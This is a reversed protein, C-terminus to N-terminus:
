QNAPAPASKSSSSFTRALSSHEFPEEVGEKVLSRELGRLMELEGFLDPQLYAMVLGAVDSVLHQEVASEIQPWLTTSWAHLMEEVIHVALGGCADEEAYRVVMEGLTTGSAEDETFLDAMPHRAFFDVEDRQCQAVLQSAIFPSIGDAAYTPGHLYRFLPYRKMLQRVRASESWSLPQLRAELSRAVSDLGLGRWWVRVVHAAYVSKRSPDLVCRQYFHSERQLLAALSGYLIGSRDVVFSGPSATRAAVHDDTIRQAVCVMLEVDDVQDAPSSWGSGHRLGSFDTPMQLHLHLCIWERLDSLQHLQDRPLPFLQFLLANPSHYPPPFRSSLDRLDLDAAAAKVAAVVTNAEYEPILPRGFPGGDARLQPPPAVETLLPFLAAYEERSLSDVSGASQLSDAHFKTLQETTPLTEECPLLPGDAFVIADSAATSSSASAAEDLRKGTWPGIAQDEMRLEDFTRTQYWPLATISQYIHIMADTYHDPITAKEVM